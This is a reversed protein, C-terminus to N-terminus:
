AAEEITEHTNHAEQQMDEIHQYTVSVHGIIPIKKLMQGIQLHLWKKNVLNELSQYANFTLITPKIADNVNRTTNDGM